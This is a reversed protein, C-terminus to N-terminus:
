RLELDKKVSKLLANVQRAADEPPPAKGDGLEIRMHFRIPVNQRATAATLLPRGRGEAGLAAAGAGGGAAM